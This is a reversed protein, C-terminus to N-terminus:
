QNLEIKGFPGFLDKPSGRTFGTFESWTIAPEFPESTDYQPIQVQMLSKPEEEALEYGVGEQFEMLASRVPNTFLTIGQDEFAVSLNKTKRFESYRSGPSLNYEWEPDKIDEYKMQYLIDGAVSRRFKRSRTIELNLRSNLHNLYTGLPQCEETGMFEQRLEAELDRIPINGDDSLLPEVTVGRFEAEGALCRFLRHEFCDLNKRGVKTHCHPPTEIGPFKLAGSQIAVPSRGLILINASRKRAVARHRCVRGASQIISRISIPDVVAYDFDLDNGTEIVPSTIVVIEIDNAGIEQARFFLDASRCLSALGEDPRTGKRTLARKLQDEIWARQLNPFQSHLCLKVRLRSSKRDALKGSPLRTAMAATHTIRTMRVLGCSVQFGNIQVANMDHLRSCSVDIQDVLEDWTECPQCIEGRRLPTAAKLERLIAGRCGSLIEHLNRGDKNTLCSKSSDGTCLLHVHPSTGQFKAFEEWGKTYAKYLTEAIDPALTASMIIVRRGAAGAQFVLRCIASIDEGNYQDIEDLILDSTLVRISPILFRTNVTQAVGMLHDITGIMVPAALLRTADTKRKGVKELVIDCYAPMSYGTDFSLGRLWDTERESGEKPISGNAREVRLWEPLEILSAAGDYDTRKEVTEQPFQIPPQGILVSIDDNRFGLDEVYEKASQTALSRLGLCLSMRFQRREPLKDGMAANALITPAGRTKGTGTGSLVCAFFGGTRTNCLTRAATAAVEQWCFRPDTSPSPLVIGSPIQDALLAPFRDRYRHLLDFTGHANAYVRQVHRTLSDAAVRGNSGPKASMTNALHDPTRESRESLASGVHDALMLAARLAIDASSIHKGPVLHSAERRLRRMWWLEHWFPKGNAIRLDAKCLLADKNVHRCAIATMHDSGGDPLRHHTLILMGVLHSLTGERNLFFFPIEKEPKAHISILGDIANVCAQDIMQPELQSLSDCLDSDETRGFLHDWVIASFLEHRIPDAEAVDHTLARRLKEQFLDTAKGLDHFLAAIRVAAGACNEGSTGKKKRHVSAPHMAIPVLGDDSFALRSGIRILPVRSARTSRIEQITVATNRAASRRLERTVRDLCANTAKGRWTRDGIRWFYRDLIRATRIRSKKGSRCVAIIERM